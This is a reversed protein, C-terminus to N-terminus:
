SQQEKFNDQNNQNIQNEMYVNWHAEWNKCFNKRPNPFVSIKFNTKWDMFISFKEM